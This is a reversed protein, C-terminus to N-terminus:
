RAWGASCVCAGSGSIGDDCTGGPGCMCPLCTPGYHGPACRECQAGAWGDACCASANRAWPAVGAATAFRWGGYGVGGM